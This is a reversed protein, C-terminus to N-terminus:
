AVHQVNVVDDDAASNSFDVNHHVDFFTQIVKAARTVLDQMIAGDQNFPVGM